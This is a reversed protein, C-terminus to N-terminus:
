PSPAGINTFAQWVAVAFTAVAAVTAKPDWNSKYAAYGILGGIVILIIVLLM